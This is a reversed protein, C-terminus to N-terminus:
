QHKRCDLAPVRFFQPGPKGPERQCLVSKEGHGLGIHRIHEGGLQAAAHIPRLGQVAHQEMRLVFVQFGSQLPAPFIHSLALAQGLRQEM